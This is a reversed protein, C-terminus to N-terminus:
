FEYDEVLEPSLVFDDFFDSTDVKSLIQLAKIETSPLKELSEEFYPNDVIGSLYLLSMKVCFRFAYVHIKVEKNKIMENLKDANIQIAGKMNECSSDESIYGEDFLNQYKDDSVCFELVYTRDYPNELLANAIQANENAKGICDQDIFDPYDEDWCEAETLLDRDWAYMFDSDSCIWNNKEPGYSGNLIADKGDQTTGHFFKKM